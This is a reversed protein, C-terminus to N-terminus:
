EDYVRDLGYQKTFLKLMTGARSNADDELYGGAYMVPNPGIEGKEGQRLHTLEHGISRLIDPVARNKCYIKMTGTAPDCHATTMISHSKRDCVLHISFSGAVSLSRCCYGIFDAILAVKEDPMDLGTEVFLKRGRDNRVTPQEQGLLRSVFGGSRAM